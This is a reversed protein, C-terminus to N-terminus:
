VLKENNFLWNGAIGIAAIILNILSISKDLKQKKYFFDFLVLTFVPVFVM